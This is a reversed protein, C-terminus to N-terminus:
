KRTERIFINGERKEKCDSLSVSRCEGKEEVNGQRKLRGEDNKREEGMCATSRKWMLLHFSVSVPRSGESGAKKLRRKRGGECQM